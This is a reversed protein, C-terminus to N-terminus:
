SIKTVHSKTNLQQRTFVWMLIDVIRKILKHKNLKFVSLQFNQPIKENKPLKKVKNINVRLEWIITKPWFLTKVRYWCLQNLLDFQVNESSSFWFTNWPKYFVIATCEGGLTYLGCAVLTKLDSNCHGVMAFLTALSLLSVALVVLPM